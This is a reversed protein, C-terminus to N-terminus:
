SLDSLRATAIADALDEAPVPRLRELAPEGRRAQRLPQSTSRRLQLRQQEVLAEDGADPVDVGILREPARPEMRQPRGVREVGAIDPTEVAGHALDQAFPDGVPARAEAVVDARVALRALIRLPQRDIPAGILRAIAAAPRDPADHHPLPARMVARM